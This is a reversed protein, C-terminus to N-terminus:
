ITHKNWLLCLLTISLQHCNQSVVACTGGVPFCLGQLYVSECHVNIHIFTHCYSIHMYKLKFELTNRTRPTHTRLLLNTSDYLQIIVGGFVQTAGLKQQQPSHYQQTTGLASIAMFLLTVHKGEGGNVNEQFCSSSVIALFFVVTQTSILVCKAPHVVTDQLSINTHTSQHLGCDSKAIVINISM